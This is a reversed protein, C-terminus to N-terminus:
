WLFVASKPTLTLPDPNLPWLDLTLTWLRAGACASQGDIVYLLGDFAPVILQLGPADVLRVPTVPAM